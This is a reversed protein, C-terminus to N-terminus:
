EGTLKVMDKYYKKFKGIDYCQFSPNSQHIEELSMAKLKKNSETEILLIYLLHWGQSKKDRSSWAEVVNKEKFQQTGNKYNKLITQMYGKIVPTRDTPPGTPLRRIVSSPLHSTIV